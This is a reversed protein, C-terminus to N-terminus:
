CQAMTQVRGTGALTGAREPAVLCAHRCSLPATGLVRPHHEDLRVRHPADAPARPEPVRVRTLERLLAQVRRESGDLLALGPGHVLRALEGLPPELELAAGRALRAGQQGALVAGDLAIE